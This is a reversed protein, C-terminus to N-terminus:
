VAEYDHFVYPGVGGTGRYEVPVEPMKGGTVVIFFKRPTLEGAAVYEDHAWVVDTEYWMCLNGGQSAVLLPKATANMPVLTFPQDEDLGGGLDAESGFLIVKWVTRM